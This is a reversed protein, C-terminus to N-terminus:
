FARLSDKFGEIFVKRDTADPFRRVIEDRLAQADADHAELLRKAYPIKGLGKRKPVVGDTLLKHVLLDPANKHEVIYQLTIGTSKQAIIELAAAPTSPNNILGHQIQKDPSQALQLLVDPPTKKNEALCVFDDVNLQSDYIQALLHPPTNKDTVLYGNIEANGRAVLLKIVSVPLKEREAVSLAVLDDVDTALKELVAVPVDERRTLMKRTPVDGSEAVKLMVSLPLAPNLLVYRRVTHDTDELLVEFLHAPTKSDLAAVKREVLTNLSFNLAMKASM